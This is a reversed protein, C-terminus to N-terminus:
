NNDSQQRSLHPRSAQEADAPFAEEGVDSHRRAIRQAWDRLGTRLELPKVLEVQDGFGLFWFVVEDLSEVDLFVDLEGAPGVRQSQDRSRPIDRVVAAIRPTFRLQVEWTRAPRKRKSKEHLRELSFRPPITYTEETLELREICAIEIARVKRDSSSHGVLSWRSEVRSLRYLSLTTAMTRGRGDERYWLRLRKGEWLAKLLTKYISHREPPLTFTSVDEPILESCRTMRQRVENPLAQIVKELASRAPLLSGLPDPVSGLRSVILLALAERDDLQIPQLLCNRELQYGQRDPRYLITLGAAELITLDRYITRRSVECAEALRRANPFRESQLIMLLQLLRALPLRLSSSHLEGRFDAASQGNRDCPAPQMDSESGTLSTRTVKWQDDERSFVVRDAAILVRRM